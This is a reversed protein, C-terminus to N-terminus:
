EMGVAAGIEPQELLRGEPESVPRPEEPGAVHEETAGVLPIGKVAPEIAAEVARDREGFNGPLDQEISERELGFLHHHNRVAHIELRKGGPIRAGQRPRPGAGQEPHVFLSRDKADDPPEIGLFALSLGNGGEGGHPGVQRGGPQDQDAALAKSMGSLLAHEALKGGTEPDRLRHVEEAMAVIHGSEQRSEVEKEQRRVALSEPERQELRHGGSHRDHRGVGGTRGLDQVATPRTHEHRWAIGRGQGRRDQRKKSVTLAARREGDALLALIASALAPPNRPPVLVGARGGDLIEPPSAADAAVIPVGAAMAELLAFGFAEGHSPLLFLDFGPLLGAVDDRHGLFDVAEAVGLGSALERLVGEEGSHGLSEGGVLVLRAAPLHARVAALAAIAERQGKKADLRGVIGLVPTQEDVGFLARARARALARANGTPFAELDVGNPIVVVQEAQLPLRDLLVQRAIETLAIARDLRRYLWRHLPDRKDTRRFFMHSTWFLRPRHALGLTAQELLWLDTGRHAHLLDVGERVVFARLRAVARPAWYDRASVALTAVGAAALARELPTGPRCLALSRFGAGAM